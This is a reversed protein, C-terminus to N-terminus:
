IATIEKIIDNYIILECNLHTKIECLRRVDKEKLNGFKNYHSSENYEFVANKEKDYGDVWYGLEKIHYEGGNLAHQFNYGNQKGYADIFQCALPNFNPFAKSYKESIEKYRRKRGSLSQKQLIDYSRYYTGPLNYNINCGPSCFKAWGRKSQSLSAYFSTDCNLCKKYTGKLQSSDKCNRCIINNKISKNCNKSTTHYIIGNCKPCTRFYPTRNKM